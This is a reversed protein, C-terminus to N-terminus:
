NPCGLIIKCMDPTFHAEKDPCKADKYSCKFHFSPTNLVNNWPLREHYNLKGGARRPMMRLDGSSFRCTLATVPNRYSIPAILCIYTGQQNMKVIHKGTQGPGRPIMRRSNAASPHAAGKSESECNCDPPM